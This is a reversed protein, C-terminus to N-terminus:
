VPLSHALALTALGSGLLISSATLVPRGGKANITEIAMKFADVVDFTYISPPGSYTDVFGVKITNAGYSFSVGLFGLLVVALGVIMARKM